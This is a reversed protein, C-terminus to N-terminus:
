IAVDPVVRSSPSDFLPLLGAGLERDSLNLLQFPGVLTWKEITIATRTITTPMATTIRCFFCTVEEDLECSLADPIGDLREVGKAFKICSDGVGFVTAGLKESVSWFPFGKEM